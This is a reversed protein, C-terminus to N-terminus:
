ASPSRGGTRERRSPEIERLATQYSKWGGGRKKAVYMAKDAANKLADATDGDDPFSAFGLSGQVSVTGARTAIPPALARLLRRAILEVQTEDKVSDFLMMFEDGGHRGVVDRDRLCGRLRESVAQLVEDGVDHGYQDNIPKFGDLDVYCLTFRAPPVTANCHVIRASLETDFKFRNALGTLADTQALREVVKQEQDRERKLNRAVFEYIFAMGSTFILGIVGVMLQMRGATAPDLAGYFRFGTMELLAFLVIVALSAIVMGAGWRAGGFFYAVLPAIAMLQAACSVAAGGSVCTGALVAFFVVLVMSVSCLVYNGSRRLTGLLLAAIAVIPVCIALGLIKSRVPLPALALVVGTSFIVVGTLLLTMALIRGRSLTSSETRLTPHVFTDVLALFRAKIGVLITAEHGSQPPLSTRTDTAAVVIPAAPKPLVQAQAVPASNTSPRFFRWTSGGNCKADYMASDAARKLADADRGDRPYFAFGLSAGVQLRGVSTEIPKGIIQLMREALMEVSSGEANPLCGTADFMAMFEDGGHRGVIDNGRFSLRLREAVVRLVEDGVRHGYQDNIPKFGDLDVCCLVFPRPPIATGCVEIRRRLNTDVSRRNALGTLVDMQAMTLAKQHERDRECKLKIATLEYAFAMASVALVNIFCILLQVTRLDRADGITQPFHIGAREAAVFTFVIFLSLLLSYSGGRTSGFFYAVLPPVALLQAASSQMIGGSLCIGVVVAMEILLGTAVSCFRYSGHRQLRTLLLCTGVFSPFCIGLGLVLNLRPVSTLPLIICALAFISAFAILLGILVRTRYLTDPKRRLAPHVFYEVVGVTSPDRAVTM